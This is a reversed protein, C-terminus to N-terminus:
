SMTLRFCFIKTFLGYFVNNKNYCRRLPEGMMWFPLSTPATVWTRMFSGVAPYPMKISFISPCIPSRATYFVFPLIM